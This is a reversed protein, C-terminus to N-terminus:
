MESPQNQSEKALSCLGRYYGPYKLIMYDSPEEPIFIRGETDKKKKDKKAYSDLGKKQIDVLNIFAKKKIFVKKKLSPIIHATLGTVSNIPEDFKCQSDASVYFGKKRGHAIKPFGQVFYKQFNCDNTFHFSHDITLNLPLIFIGNFYKRPDEERIIFIYNGDEVIKGTFTVRTEDKKDKYKYILNGIYGKRLVMTKTVVFEPKEQDYKELNAEDYYSGSMEPATLGYYRFVSSVFNQCQSNTEFGQSELSFSMHGCLALVVILVLKNM